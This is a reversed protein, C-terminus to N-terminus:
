FMSEPIIIVDGPELRVNASTDGNKLLDSLRVKYERQKGSTKDYRILRARNGAAFESLGGVAIMADLLTMNARYPLSAPKQTAGVIRVQQSFTGSFNEVIVSVIPDKIYEGLAIKMDDALMAPTKGVAPMDSILPTTIRGDPRV